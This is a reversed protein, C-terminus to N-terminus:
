IWAEDRGAGDRFQVESLLHEALSLCSGMGQKGGQSQCKAARRCSLCLSSSSKNNLLRQLSERGNIQIIGKQVGKIGKAGMVDRPLSKWQNIIITHFHVEQQKGARAAPLSHIRLLQESERRM